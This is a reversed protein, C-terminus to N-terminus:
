PHAAPSVARCLAQLDYRRILRDLKAQRELAATDALWAEFTAWDSIQNEEAATAMRRAIVTQVQAPPVEAVSERTITAMQTCFHAVAEKSPESLEPTRSRGAEPSHTTTQAGGCAVLFVVTALLNTM